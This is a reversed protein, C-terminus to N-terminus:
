LLLALLCALLCACVLRRWFLCVFHLFAFVASFMGLDRIHGYLYM